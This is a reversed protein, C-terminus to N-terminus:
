NRLNTSLKSTDIACHTSFYGMVRRGDDGDNRRSGPKWSHESSVPSQALPTTDSRSQPNRYPNFINNSSSPRDQSYQAQIALWSEIERRARGEETPDRNAFYDEAWDDNDLLGEVRQKELNKRM